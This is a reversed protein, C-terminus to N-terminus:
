KRAGMLTMSRDYEQRHESCVAVEYTAYSLTQPDLLITALRKWPAPKNCSEGDTLKRGCDM